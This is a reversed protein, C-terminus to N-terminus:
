RTSHYTTTQEPVIAEDPQEKKRGKFSIILLFPAGIYNEHGAFRAGAFLERYFGAVGHPETIDFTGQTINSNGQDNIGARTEFVLNDIFLDYDRQGPAGKYQQVGVAGDFDTVPDTVADTRTFGGSKAVIYYSDSEAGGGGTVRGKYLSPDELQAKSIAVLSINYTYTNFDHLLNHRGSVEKYFNQWIPNNDTPNPPNLPETSQTVANSASVAQNRNEESAAANAQQVEQSVNINLGAEDYSNTPTKVVADIGAEDYTPYEDAYNTTNFPGTTEAAYTTEGGGPFRRRMYDIDEQTLYGGEVDEPLYPLMEQTIRDGVNVNDFPRTVTGQSTTM